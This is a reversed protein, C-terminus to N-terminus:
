EIRNDRAGNNHSCAFNDQGVSFVWFEGSLTTRCRKEYNSLTHVDYYSLDSHREIFVTIEHTSYYGKLHVGVTITICMYSLQRRFCFVGKAWVQKQHQFTM